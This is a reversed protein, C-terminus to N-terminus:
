TRSMRLYVHGIRQLSKTDKKWFSPTTSEIKGFHRTWQDRYPQSKFTLGLEDAYLLSRRRM